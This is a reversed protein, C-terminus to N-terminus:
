LLQLAMTMIQRKLRMLIFFLIDESNNNFSNTDINKLKICARFEVLIINMLM